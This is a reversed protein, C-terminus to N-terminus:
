KIYKISISAIEGETTRGIEWSLLSDESIDMLGEWIGDTLTFVTLVGNVTLKLSSVNDTYIKIISLNGVVARQKVVERNEQFDITYGYAGGVSDALASKSELVTGVSYFNGGTKNYVDSGLDISTVYYINSDDRFCLYSVDNHSEDYMSDRIGVVNTKALSSDNFVVYGFVEKSDRKRESIEYLLLSSDAKGGIAASLTSVDSQRQSIEYNLSSVDAKNGLQSSLSSVADTRDSIEKNLDSKSAKESLQVAISNSLTSVDDAVDGIAAMAVEHKASLDNLADSIISAFGDVYGFCSGIIMGDGDSPGAVWMYTEGSIIPIQKGASGFLRGSDTNDSTLFILCNSPISSVSENESDMIKSIDYTNTSSNYEFLTHFGTVSYFLKKM